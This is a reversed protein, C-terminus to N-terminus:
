PGPTKANIEALQVYIGKLLAIMTGDDAGTADAYAADDVAGTASAQAEGASSSADVRLRGTQADVVLETVSGAPGALDGSVRRATM